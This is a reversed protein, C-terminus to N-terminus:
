GGTIVPFLSIRDGDSLLREMHLDSKLLYGNLVLAFQGELLSEEFLSKTGLAACSKFSGQILSLLDGLCTGSRLNFFVEKPSAGDFVKVHVTINCDDDM